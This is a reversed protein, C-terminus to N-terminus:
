KFISQNHQFLPLSQWIATSGLLTLLILIMLKFQQQSIAHRLKSGIFVFILSLVTMIILLRIQIANFSQLVPFLVIFQVIKSALFNLNSIIVVENKHHNSSLLYMMLFPAMANTAGGILGALFGFILMNSLNAAIRVPQARFQDIVYLLIVAGMGAKLYAENVQLLLHVGLYSGILASFILGWYKKSYHLITQLINLREDANLMLINLILCPIILMSVATSLPYLMSLAATSIMPFGFGSLGHLIAAVACVTLTIWEFKQM